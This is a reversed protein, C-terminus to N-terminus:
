DHAIRHLAAERGMRVTAALLEQNEFAYELVLVTIVRRSRVHAVRGGRAVRRAGFRAADDEHLKPLEVRGVTRAHTDLGSELRHPKVGIRALVHAELAPRRIRADREIRRAADLKENEVAAELFAALAELSLRPQPKGGAFR